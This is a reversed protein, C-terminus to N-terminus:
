MFKIPMYQKKNLVMYQMEWHIMIFNVSQDLTLALPDLELSHTLRQKNHILKSPVVATLGYHALQDVLIPLRHLLNSILQILVVM